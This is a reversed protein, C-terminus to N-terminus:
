VLAIKGTEFKTESEDVSDVVVVMFLEGLITRKITLTKVTGEIERKTGISIFAVGM